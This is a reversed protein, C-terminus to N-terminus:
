PLRRPFGGPGAEVAGDKTTSAPADSILRGCQARSAGVARFGDSREREQDSPREQRVDLCHHSERREINRCNRWRTGSGTACRTSSSSARPNRCMTAARGGHTWAELGPTERTARLRTRAGNRVVARLWAGVAAPDRVDGIRRLATLAADQVVDEADPGYGLLGLAVARM